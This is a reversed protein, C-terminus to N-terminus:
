VPKSLLCRNTYSPGPCRVLPFRLPIYTHVERECLGSFQEYIGFIRMDTPWRMLNQVDALRAWNGGTFFSWPLFNSSSPNNSHNSMPKTTISDPFNTTMCMKLIQQM